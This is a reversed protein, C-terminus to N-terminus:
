AAHNAGYAINVTAGKCANQNTNSDVMQITLGSWSGGESNAPATFPGTASGAIVFDAATCPNPAQQPPVPPNTRPTVSTISAQIQGVQVASSNTNSFDGHLAVPPGGPYLAGPALPAQNVTVNVVDAVTATGTGTGGKTWYAYAGVASIAVVTFTVLLAAIAKKSTILKKM